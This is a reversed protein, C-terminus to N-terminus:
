FWFISMTNIIFMHYYQTILGAGEQTDKHMM